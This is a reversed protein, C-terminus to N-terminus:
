NPATWFWGTTPPTVTFTGATDSESAGFTVLCILPETTTVGTNADYIVAYSATITSTTWSAAASSYVTISEGINAWIAGGDTVTEGVVTPFTPTTAGTTGAQVCVYLFGNGTAPRIVDGVSQPNSATWTTAWSNATTETNTLTGLTTGGATYGTGTIESASVDSFHVHTALNPTYGSALLAMKITHGGSKWQANGQIFQDASAMYPNSTVAM